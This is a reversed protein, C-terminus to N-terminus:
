EVAVFKLFCGAFEVAPDFAVASAEDLFVLRSLLHPFLSFPSLSFPSLVAETVDEKTMDAKTADEKTADDKGRGADGKRRNM